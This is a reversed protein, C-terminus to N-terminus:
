LFVSSVAFKLLTSMNKTSDFARVLLMWCMLNVVEVWPCSCGQWPVTVTGRPSPTPEAERLQVKLAM